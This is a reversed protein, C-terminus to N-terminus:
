TGFFLCQKKGHAWELYENVTYQLRLDTFDTKISNLLLTPCASYLALVVEDLTEASYVTIKTAYAQETKILKLKYAEAQILKSALADAPVISCLTTTLHPIDNQVTVGLTRCNGGIYAHGLEATFARVRETRPDVPKFGQMTDTFPTHCVVIVAKSDAPFGEIRKILKLAQRLYCNPCLGQKCIYKGAFGIPPCYKARMIQKPACSSLMPMCSGSFCRWLKTLALRLITTRATVQKKLEVDADAFNALEILNKTIYYNKIPRLFHRVVEHNPKTILQQTLQNVVGKLPPSLHYPAATVLVRGYINPTM